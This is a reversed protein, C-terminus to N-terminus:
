SWSLYIQMKVMHTELIEPCFKMSSPLLPEWLLQLMCKLLPSRWFPQHYVLVVQM